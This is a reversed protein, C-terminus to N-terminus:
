SLLHSSIGARCDGRGFCFLDEKCFYGSCTLLIEAHLNIKVVSAAVIFALDDIVSHRIVIFEVCLCAIDYFPRLFNKAELPCVVPDPVKSFHRDGKRSGEALSM